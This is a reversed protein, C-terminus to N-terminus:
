RCFHYCDMHLKGFYVDLVKAKLSQERSVEAKLEQNKVELFIKLITILDAESYKFALTSEALAIASIYTPIPTSAYSPALIGKKLTKLEDSKSNSRYAPPASAIVSKCSRFGLKIVSIARYSGLKSTM